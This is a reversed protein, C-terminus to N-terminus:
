KTQLAELPKGDADLFMGVELKLTELLNNSLGLMKAAGEERQEPPLSPFAALARGFEVNKVLANEANQRARDEVMTTPGTAKRIRRYFAVVALHWHILQWDDAIEWPNATEGAADHLDARHVIQHRRKTMQTLPPFLDKFLAPAVKLRKLAREIDSNSSFSVKKNPKRFHSRVFDEISAHLFVVMARLLDARVGESRFLGTHELGAVGSHLFTTIASIRGMNMQFRLNTAERDAIPPRSMKM